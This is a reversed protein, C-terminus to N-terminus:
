HLNIQVKFTEVDSVDGLHWRLMEDIARIVFEAVDCQLLVLPISLQSHPDVSDIYIKYM